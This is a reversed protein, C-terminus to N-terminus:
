KSGMYFKKYWIAFNRLGDRLSTHPKFGFDKELPTTDAYTVPVDGAQMPVLEKHAEFDYDKPLVEARILEEQLIQVFDLLNEPNNNGINYVAYPPIPLGDNGKKKEPAKNMVRIIGEVIDDIYTFDRKCNGYNFIKITEGKILKNTFGFYAMDPRGAPGYVTFFRLGTTPIDYLKSYCHAFLENSKKTAAYLSVPNDVKDETSFPVKTNGGYVSSSSAYVLHEVPNHRCAELINYFGIVNSEIYTDPHDISYRVGAQAALNVVISPKYNAFVKNVLDKDAINGKIFKFNPFQELEKLRYEKLSVDYYDNMNDLGIIKAIGEELLRKSLYYGIFGASGTVLITKKKFVVVESKM